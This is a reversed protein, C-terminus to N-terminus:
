DNKAEIKLSYLHILEFVDHILDTSLGLDTAQNLRNQRSQQWRTQDLPPLDHQKKYEGIKQVINMRKALLALLESDCADIKQRLEELSENM